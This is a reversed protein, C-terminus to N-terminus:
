LATENEVQSTELLIIKGYRKQAKPIDLDQPESHGEAEAETPKSPELYYTGCVLINNSDERPCFEVSDAPWVTNFAVM